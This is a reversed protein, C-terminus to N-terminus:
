RADGTLIRRIRAPAQKITMIEHVPRGIENHGAYWINEDTPAVFDKAAERSTFIYYWGGGGLPESTSVIRRGSYWTRERVIIYKRGQAQAEAVAAVTARICHEMREAREEEEAYLSKDEAWREEAEKKQRADMARQDEYFQEMPCKM